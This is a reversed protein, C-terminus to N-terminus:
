HNELNEMIEVAQPFGTLFLTSGFWSAEFSAMQDPDVSNEDLSSNMNFRIEDINGQGSFISLGAQEVVSVLLIM